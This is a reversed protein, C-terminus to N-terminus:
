AEDFEWTNVTVVFDSSNKRAGLRQFRSSLRLQARGAREITEHDLGVQRRRMTVGAIPGVSPLGM